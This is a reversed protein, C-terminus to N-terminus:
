FISFDANATLQKFQKSFQSNRTISRVEGAGLMLYGFADGVHSHENKNPADRFREYGAGVAVRKFHYGGALSKRTRTCKSNVILGAKGDIMRNMPMAGAERRVKFDNTSTPRAHLGMTRLHEFATVEFIESESFHSNARLAVRRASQILPGKKIPSVIVIASIM